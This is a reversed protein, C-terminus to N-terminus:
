ADRLQDLARQLHHQLQEYSLSETEFGCRILYLGPALPPSSKDVLVRLRRRIRNRAVANGVKRGIAFAVAVQPEADPDQAYSVRLPGSQGRALPRALLAFQRRASVRGPM